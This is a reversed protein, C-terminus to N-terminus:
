LKEIRSPDITTAIERNLVNNLAGANATNEILVLRVKNHWSQTSPYGNQDKRLKVKGVGVEATVRINRETVYPVFGWGQFDSTYVYVLITNKELVASTLVNPANVDLWLYNGAGAGTATWTAASIDKEFVKVNANGNTGPQGEPGAPGEKKSCATIIITSMLVPFLLRKM